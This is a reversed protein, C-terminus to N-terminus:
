VTVTVSGAVLQILVQSAMMVLLVVLGLTVQALVSLVLQADGFPVAVAM